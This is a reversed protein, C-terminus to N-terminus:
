CPVETFCISLTPLDLSVKLFKTLVLLYGSLAMAYNDNM